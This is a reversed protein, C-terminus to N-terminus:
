RLVRVVLNRRPQHLPSRRMPKQFSWRRRVASSTIRSCTRTRVADVNRHHRSPPAIPSVLSPPVVRRRRTRRSHFRGHVAIMMACARPARAKKRDTDRDEDDRGRHPERKGQGEGMRWGRIRYKARRQRFGRWPRRTRTRTAPLGWETRCGDARVRRASEAGTRGRGRRARRGRSAILGPAVLASAIMEVTPTSTITSTPRRRPPDDTARTAPDIAAM